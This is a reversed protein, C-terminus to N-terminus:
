SDSRRASGRVNDKTCETLAPPPPPSECQHAAHRFTRLRRWDKIMPLASVILQQAAICVGDSADVGGKGPVAHAPFRIRRDAPSATLRHTWSM